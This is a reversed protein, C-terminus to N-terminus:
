FRGAQRARAVAGAYVKSIRMAVFTSIAVRLTAEVLGAVPSNNLSNSQAESASTCAATARAWEACGAHAASLTSSRM